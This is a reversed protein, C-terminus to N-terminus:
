RKSRTQWHKPHRSCHMVAFIIVTEGEARYYVGFPFRHIMARRTQRHVIPYMKCNDPVTEVVRLFENLFEEGLGKRQKEYWVAADEIDTEAEPRIHVRLSM